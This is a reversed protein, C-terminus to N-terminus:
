IELKKALEKFNRTIIIAKMNRKVVFDSLNNWGKGEYELPGIEDIVVYHFKKANDIVYSTVSNFLYLSFFFNKWKLIPPHILTPDRSAIIGSFPINVGKLYYIKKGFLYGSPALFGIFKENDHSIIGSLFTTKGSNVPGSIFLINGKKIKRIM